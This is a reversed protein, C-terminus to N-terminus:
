FLFCGAVFEYLNGRGCQSGVNSSTPHAGSRLNGVFTQVDTAFSRAVFYTGTNWFRDHRQGGM